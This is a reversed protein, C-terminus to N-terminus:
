PARRGFCPGIFSRLDRHGGGVELAPTGRARSSGRAPAAALKSGTSSGYGDRRMGTIPEWITAVECGSAACAPSATRAAPPLAMSAAMAVAAASATTSGVM